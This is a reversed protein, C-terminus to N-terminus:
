LDASRSPKPDLVQSGSRAADVNEWRHLLGGLVTIEFGADWLTRFTERDVTEVVVRHVRGLATKASALLEGEAGEVDLKILDVEPFEEILDSLMVSDVTIFDPSPRSTSWTSLFDGRYLRVSGGRPTIAKEIVMINTVQNLAINRRLITAAIPNPEVAVVQKFRRSLPIAYQGVNAGLDLVVKGKLSLLFRRTVPEFPLLYYAFLTTRNLLWYLNDFELTIDDTILETPSVLRRRLASLVPSLLLARFYPWRPERPRASLWSQLLARV